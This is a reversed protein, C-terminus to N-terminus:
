DPDFVFFYAEDEEEEEGKEWGWFTHARLSEPGIQILLVESLLTMNTETLAWVWLATTKTWRVDL